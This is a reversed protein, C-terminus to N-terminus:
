MPSVATGNGAAVDLVRQGARLDVAECRTEGVIQLTTGVLAYDGSSWASQQKTKIATFDPPSSTMLTM